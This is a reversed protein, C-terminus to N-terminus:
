RLHVIFTIIVNYSTCSNHFHLISIYIQQMFISTKVAYFVSANNSSNTVRDNVQNSVSLLNRYDISILNLGFLENM